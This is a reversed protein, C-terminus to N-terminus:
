TPTKGLPLRSAEASVEAVFATCAVHVAPMDQAAFAAATARDFTRFPEWGFPRAAFAKAAARVADRVLQYARPEDWPERLLQADLPPNFRPFWSDANSAKSPNSAAACTGLPNAFNAGKANTM